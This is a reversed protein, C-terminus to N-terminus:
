KNPDSFLGRGNTVRDLGMFTWYDTIRFLEAMNVRASLSPCALFVCVPKKNELMRKRTRKIKLSLMDGQLFFSKLASSKCIRRRKRSIQRGQAETLDQSQLWLAGRM